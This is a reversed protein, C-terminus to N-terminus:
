RASQIFDDIEQVRREWGADLPLVHGADTEVHLRRHSVSLREFWAQAARPDAIADEPAIMVLVPLPFDEPPPLGELTDFVAHYLNIPIFRDRQVLPGASADQLDLPFNSELMPTRKFLRRGIAYWRAPPLVPSRRGSVEILPALLVVGATRAPDAHVVHLALAAGLSHGVLWVEDHEARLGDREREVADLWDAATVAAAHQFPDGFGPLQMARCTYGREALAPAMRQYLSPAGAFGPIFLLATEGEGLSWPAFGARIGDADRDITTSWAQYQREIRRAYWRDTVRVALWVLLMLGLIVLLMRM